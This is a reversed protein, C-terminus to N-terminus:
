HGGAVRSMVLMRAMAQMGALVAQLQKDKDATDRGSGALLVHLFGHLM